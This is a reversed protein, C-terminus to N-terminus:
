YGIISDQDNNHGCHCHSHHNKPKYIFSSFLQGYDKINDGPAGSVPIIREKMMGNCCPETFMKVVDSDSGYFIASAFKGVTYCRNPIPSISTIKENYYSQRFFDFNVPSKPVASCTAIFALTAAVLVFGLSNNLFFRVM